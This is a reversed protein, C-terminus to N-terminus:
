ANGLAVPGRALRDVVAVLEEEIQRPNRAKWAAGDAYLDRFIPVNEIIRSIEGQNRDVEVMEAAELIDIVSTFALSPIDLTESSVIQLADINSIVNRGRILSALDAAMGVMQTTKVLHLQSSAQDVERLGLTVDQCRLGTSFDEM